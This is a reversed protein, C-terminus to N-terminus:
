GNMAIRSPSAATRSASPGRSRGGRRARAEQALHVEQGPLRDVEGRDDGLRHAVHRDLALLQPRQQEVVAGSPSTSSDANMARRSASWASRRRRCRLDDPRLEEAAVRAITSNARRLRSGNVQCSVSCARSRGLRAASTSPRGVPSSGSTRSGPPGSRRLGEGPWTERASPIPSSSSGRSSTSRSTTPPPGPPGPRRPRRRRPPAPCAPRRPCPARRGPPCRAASRSSGPSGPRADAARLQGRRAIVWARFNEARM